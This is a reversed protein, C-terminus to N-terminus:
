ALAERVGGADDAVEIGQPQAALAAGTAPDHDCEFEDGEGEEGNERHRYSSLLQDFRRLNPPPVNIMKLTPGLAAGDGSVATV